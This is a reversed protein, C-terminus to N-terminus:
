FRLKAALKMSIFLYDMLYIYRFLLGDNIQYGCVYILKSFAMFGAINGIKYFKVAGEM